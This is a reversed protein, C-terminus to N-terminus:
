TGSRRAPRPDADARRPALRHTRDDGAPRRPRAAGLAAGAPRRAGRRRGGRLPERRGPSGDYDLSFCQMQRGDPVEVLAAIAGSDLGGSLCAGVPVDSRMRLRVSDRLLERFQEEADPERRSTAPSSVGTRRDGAARRPDRRPLAGRAPEASRRRLVDGRRRGPLPRQPLARDRRPGARAGGPVRRPDGEARLRLLHARRAGLLVAAQDRLPRALARAAASARMGSRRAGVHRQLARLLGDGVGRVGRAGGRHGDATRFRAGLSQLERRLEVYNHIEGNYTLWLGRADLGMPQDGAPTPDVIALRRNALGLEADLHIGSGDPGRHRLIAAMRELAAREVPRGSREWIGAIGCVPSTDGAHAALAREATTEEQGALRREAVHEQSIPSVTAAAWRRRRPAVVKTPTVPLTPFVVVFVSIASTSPASCGPVDVGPFSFWSELTPRVIRRM